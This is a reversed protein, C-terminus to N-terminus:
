SNEIIDLIRKKVRECTFKEAGIQHNREAMTKYLHTDNAITTLFAEFVDSDYSDTLYGNVGHQVIEPIGGVSRSIIPMGYLMGELIVNPLGETFSPFIMIHSELLVKQKTESSVHGVFKINTMEEKAFYKEVEQLDRGDGAVILNSKRQPNNKTFKKFADIAIYIGKEKEIRSLFVFNVEKEYALCKSKLDFNKLYSSDAVTTEVFFQTEFPVGLEILKEKFINGLVIFKNAKAYSLKFLLSKFKSKKIKEEYPDFWGRFFVISKCNLFNTIFIFIMDRHFSKGEDLSPNIIVISYRHKVVKFFFVVYRILLHYVSALTSQPKAKNITFYSINKNKDLALTKYYNSVGGPIDLDPVLILTNPTKNLNM